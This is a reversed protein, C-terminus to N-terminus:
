VWRYHMVRAYHTGDKDKYFSGQSDLDPRLYWGKRRVNKKLWDGIVRKREDWAAKELEAPYVEMTQDWEYKKGVNEANRIDMRGAVGQLGTMMMGFAEMSLEVEVFQIGSKPEEIRLRATRREPGGSPFGLSVRAELPYEETTQLVNYGRNLTKLDDYASM